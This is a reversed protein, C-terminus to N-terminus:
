EVTFIIRGNPADLAADFSQLPKEAPGNLVKGDLAYNSSHCPCVVRQKDKSYEVTCKKHSCIADLVRVSQESERIFLLDRGQIKLVMSGGATKLKEAKDLSVALKKQGLAMRAASFLGLLGAALQQLAGRRGTPRRSTQSANAQRPSCSGCNTM